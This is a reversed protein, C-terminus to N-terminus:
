IKRHLDYEPQGPHVVQGRFAAEDLEIEAVTAVRRTQCRSCPCNLRPGPRSGEFSRESSRRVRHNMGAGCRSSGNLLKLKRTSTSPTARAANLSTLPRSLSVATISYREPASFTFQARLSGPSVLNPFM